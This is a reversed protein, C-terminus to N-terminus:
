DDHRFLDRLLTSESQEHRELQGILERTPGPLHPWRSRDGTLQSLVDAARLMTLHESKLGAVQTALAPAEEIVTGFYDPSEEAAFHDALDARLHVILVSPGLDEPLETQGEELAACMLRVRRLTKGLHAHDQFVATFRGFLSPLPMPSTM